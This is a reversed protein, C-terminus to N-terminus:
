STTLLPIEREPKPPPAYGLACVCASANEARAQSSSDPPCAVCRDGALASFTDPPCPATKNGGPCAFGPACPSCLTGNGAFGQACSCTFSGTTPNPSPRNASPPEHLRSPYVYLIYIIYMCVYLYICVCIDTYISM